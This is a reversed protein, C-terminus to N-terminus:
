GLLVGHQAAGSDEHALLGAGEGFGGIAQPPTKVASSKLSIM